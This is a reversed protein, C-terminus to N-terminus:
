SQLHTIQVDLEMLYDIKQPNKRSSSFYTVSVNQGVTDGISTKEVPLYNESKNNNYKVYISM